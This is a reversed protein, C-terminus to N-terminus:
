LNDYNPKRKELFASLGEKAEKTTMMYALSLEDRLEVDESTKNQSYNIMLKTTRLTKQSFNSLKKALKEALLNLEEINEAVEYIMGIDKMFDADYMRGLMMIYKTRSQGILKQMRQTGGWGPVMGINIEPQGFKANKSCIRIDCSMALELGGGLCYGNIVAITPIELKEIKTFLKHGVEIHYRATEPDYALLDNIDAGSIFNKEGGGTLLLVRAKKEIAEDICKSMTEILDISLANSMKPRNVTIKAVNDKLELKIENSM